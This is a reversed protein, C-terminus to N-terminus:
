EHGEHEDHGHLKKKVKQAHEKAQKKAEQAYQKACGKCCFITKTGKHEEIVAGGHSSALKGCEVCKPADGENAFTTVNGTYLSVILCAFVAVVFINIFRKM